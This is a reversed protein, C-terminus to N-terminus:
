DRFFNDNKPPRPASISVLVRAGQAPEKSWPLYEIASDTAAPIAATTNRKDGAPNVSGPPQLHMPVMTAAPSKKAPASSAAFQGKGSADKSAGATAGKSTWGNEAWAKDKRGAVPAESLGGQGLGSKVLELENRLREIELNYLSSCDLRNPITGLPVILRGYLTGSDFSGDAGQGGIGGVDLYANNSAMSSRCTTGDGARIEDQGNPQPVQPLQLGYSYTQNNFSYPNNGSGFNQAAAPAAAAACLAIGFAAVLAPTTRLLPRM